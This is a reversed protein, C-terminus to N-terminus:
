KYLKVFKIYEYIRYTSHVKKSMHELSALTIRSLLLCSIHLSYNIENSTATWCYTVLPATRESRANYSRLSIYIVIITNKKIWMLMLFLNDTYRETFSFVCWDVASIMNVRWCVNSSWGTTNFKLTTLIVIWHPNKKNKVPIVALIWYIGLNRAVNLKWRYRETVLFERM